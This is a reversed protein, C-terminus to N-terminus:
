RFTQPHKLGGLVGKGAAMGICIRVVFRNSSDIPGPTEGMTIVEQRLQENTYRDLTKQYDEVEKRVRKRPPM